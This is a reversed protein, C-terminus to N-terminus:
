VHEVELIGYDDSASGPLIDTAHFFFELFNTDQAITVYAPFMIGRQFTSGQSLGTLSTQGVVVDAIPSAAPNAMFYQGFVSCIGGTWTYPSIIKGSVFANVRVRDGSRLQIYWFFAEGVINGSSESVTKSSRFFQPEIRSSSLSAM